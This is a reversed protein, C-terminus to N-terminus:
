AATPRAGVFEDVLAPDRLAAPPIERTIRGRQIVLVRDALSQIFDLNQEVLLVTLGRGQRLRAVREAIRQVISPQIGETPEDLLILRPEGCLARALALLQQEGGSLTGGVRDLLAVLEPFDALVGDVVRARRWGKAIAAFALNERVSLGPFIQRGQPVYGIGLHARRHAPEREIARGALRITGALAPLQGVLTKLLTSKGMGNHGLIGVCEGDAVALTAEDLVRIRGYGAVLGQVEIM